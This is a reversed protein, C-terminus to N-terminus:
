MNYPMHHPIYIPCWIPPVLAFKDFQRASMFDDSIFTFLAELNEEFNLNNWLKLMLTDGKRNILIDHIISHTFQCCNTGLSFFLSTTKISMCKPM